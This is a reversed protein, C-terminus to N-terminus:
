EERMLKVLHEQVAAKIDELDRKLEEINNAYISRNTNCIRAIQNVNGGIRGLETALKKVESFDRRVVFGDVLMKRAYSSFTHAGCQEMKTHILLFEEESVYVQMPIERRIKRQKEM